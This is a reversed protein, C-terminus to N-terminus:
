HFVVKENKGCGKCGGCSRIQETLLEVKIVARISTQGTDPNCAIEAAACADSPGGASRGVLVEAANRLAFFHKYQLFEELEEEVPHQALFGVPDTNLFWDVDRGVIEEILLNGAGVGQGCTRKNYTYDVLQDHADFAAEIVETVDNCPM